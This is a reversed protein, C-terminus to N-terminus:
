LKIERWCENSLVVIFYILKNTRNIRISLFERFLLLSVGFEGPVALIKQTPSM